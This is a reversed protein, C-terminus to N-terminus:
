QGAPILRTSALYPQLAQWPVLAETMGDAYPLVDYPNFTVVLGKASLRPDPRAIM